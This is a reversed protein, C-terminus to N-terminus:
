HVVFSTRNLEQCNTSYPLPADVRWPELFDPLSGGGVLLSM